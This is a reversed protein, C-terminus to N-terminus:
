TLLCAHVIFCDMTPTENTSVLLNSLKHVHLLSCIFSTREEGVEETSSGFYARSNRHYCVLVSSQWNVETRMQLAGQKRFESKVSGKRDQETTVGFITAWPNM